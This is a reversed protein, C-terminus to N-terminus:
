RPTGAQRASWDMPTRVREPVRTAEPAKRRWRRIIYCGEAAHNVALVRGGATM